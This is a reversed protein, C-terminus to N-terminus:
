EAGIRWMRWIRTRQKQVMTHTGCVMLGRLCAVDALDAHATKLRTFVHMMPLIFSVAQM